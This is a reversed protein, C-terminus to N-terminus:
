RRSCQSVSVKFYLCSSVTKWNLETGSCHGYSVARAICNQVRKNGELDDIALDRLIGAGPRTKQAFRTRRRVNTV